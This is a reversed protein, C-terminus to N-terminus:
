RARGFMDFLKSVGARFNGASLDVVAGVALSQIDALADISIPEREAGLIIRERLGGTITTVLPEQLSGVLKKIDEAEAFGGPAGLLDLMPQISTNGFFGEQGEIFEKSERSALSPSAGAPVNVISNNEPVFRQETRGQGVGFDVPAFQEQEALFDVPAFEVPDAM